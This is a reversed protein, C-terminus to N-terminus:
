ANRLWFPIVNGGGLNEIEDLIAERRSLLRRHREGIPHTLLLLARQNAVDAIERNLAHLRASLTEARSM